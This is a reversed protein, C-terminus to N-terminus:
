NKINDYKCGNAKAYKLCDYHEGIDALKCTWKTWMCGNEHAYKLCDLHGHTAAHLCTNADWECGNEHAYKMCDLHGYEATFAITWEDWDCGNEHAYKLWNLLGYRSITQCSNIMCLKKTMFVPLTYYNNNLVYPKSTPTSYKIIFDLTDKVMLFDCVTIIDNINDPNIIRNNFDHFTKDSINVNIEIDPVEGEFTNIVESEINDVNIGSFLM